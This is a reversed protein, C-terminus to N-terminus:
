LFTLYEQNLALYFYFWVFVCDIQNAFNSLKFHYLTTKFEFGQISFALKWCNRQTIFEINLDEHQLAIRKLYLNLNWISSIEAQTISENEHEQLIESLIRPGHKRKLKSQPWFEWSKRRKRREHSLNCSKPMTSCLLRGNSAIENPCTDELIM